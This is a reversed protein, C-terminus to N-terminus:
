MNRGVHGDEPTSYTIKERVQPHFCMWKEFRQTKCYKSNWVISLTCFGLSESAIEQKEIQKIKRKNEDGGEELEVM